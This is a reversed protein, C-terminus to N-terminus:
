YTLKHMMLFKGLRSWTAWGREMFLNERLQLNKKGFQIHM